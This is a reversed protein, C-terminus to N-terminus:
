RERRTLTKSKVNQTARKINQVHVDQNGRSEEKIVILHCDSIALSSNKKPGTFHSNNKYDVYRVIM